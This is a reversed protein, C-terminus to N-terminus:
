QVLEAVIKKLNTDPVKQVLTKLEEKYSEEINKVNYGRKSYMEAQRITSVRDAIKVLVAEISEGREYENFNKELEALGSTIAMEKIIEKETRSKSEKGIRQTLGRPIDGLVSESLDHIIGMILMKEKDLAEKSEYSFITLMTTVEFTHEAVTEAEYSPIGSQLWGMRPINKLIGAADAIIKVGM